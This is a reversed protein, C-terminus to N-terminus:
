ILLKSYIVHCTTQLCLPFYNLRDVPSHNSSQKCLVTHAFSFPSHVKDVLQSPNLALLCHLEQTVKSLRKPHQLASFLLGNGVLFRPALIPATSISHVQNGPLHLLNM